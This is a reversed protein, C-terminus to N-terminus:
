SDLAFSVVCAQIASNIADRKSDLASIVDTSNKSLLEAFMSSIGGFDYLVGLDYVLHNFIYQDLMVESEEDKADRTKLTVEYYAPTIYNKGGCALVEIMYASFEPNVVGKPICIGYAYDCGSPSYYTEQDESSLPVPVLGFDSMGSYARMKKVASFALAYFLSRNEGFVDVSTQWINDVQGQLTQVNLFWENNNQLLQLLKQSYTISYESEGLAIVPSDNADKGILSIGSALLLSQITNNSGCLGWTDQYTMGTQGDTDSTVLKGMEYLMDVTWKHDEVMQYLSGYSGECYDRYLDKNFALASTCIKQMISIDGTTFYLKGAISLSQNAAQDWWPAELHIYQSFDNLDYLMGDQALATCANMFPMAADYLDLSTQVAQTVTQYVNSVCYAVVQVGYEQEVLDNRIRVAENLVTDTTDYLDYGIEESFYTDEIENNYVCVRFQKETFRFEPMELGDLTYYGDSDQYLNSQEGSAGSSETVPDSGASSEEAAGACATFFFCFALLLCSLSLLRLHVRRM